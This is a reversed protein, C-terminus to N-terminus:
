LPMQELRDVKTPPIESSLLVELYENTYGLNKIMNKAAKKSLFEIKQGENLILKQNKLDVYIIYIYIYIYVTQKGNHTIFTDYLSIKTPSLNVEEKLERIAAQLRDENERCRGGPLCWQNPLRKIDKDRLQLLVEDNENIIILGVGPLM